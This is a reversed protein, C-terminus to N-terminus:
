VPSQGGIDHQLGGAPVRANGLTEVGRSSALYADIKSKSLVGEAARSPTLHVRSQLLDARKRRSAM